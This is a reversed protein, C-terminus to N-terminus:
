VRKEGTEYFVLRSFVEPLRLMRDVVMLIKNEEM